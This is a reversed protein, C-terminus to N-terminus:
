KLIERGSRDAPSFGFFQCVEELSQYERPPLTTVAQCVVDAVPSLRAHSMLMERDAPFRVRRFALALKQPSLNTFRLGDSHRM